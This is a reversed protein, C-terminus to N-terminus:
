QCDYKGECVLTVLSWSGNNLCKTMHDGFLPTYGEACYLQRSDTMHYESSDLRRDLGSLMVPLQPPSPPDCLTETCSYNMNSFKYVRNFQYKM